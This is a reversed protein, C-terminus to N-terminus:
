KPVFCYKTKSIKCKKAIKVYYLDWVCFGISFKLFVIKTIIAYIWFKPNSGNDSSNSKEFINMSIASYM